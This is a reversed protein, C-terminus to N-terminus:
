SNKLWKNPCAGKMLKVSEPSKAYNHKEMIKMVTEKSDWPFVVWRETEKKYYNPTILSPPKLYVTAIRVEGSSQQQLHEKALQLSKGRDAVADVLLAKKREVSVSVSQALVAESATKAVSVYFTVRITALREVGLLDSLVRASVWGGRTVEIIVDLKFRSSRIKEAQSLLMSYIEKLTPVEFEIESEM